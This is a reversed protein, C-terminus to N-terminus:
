PKTYFEIIGPRMAHEGIASVLHMLLQERIRMVVKLRDAVSQAIPRVFRQEVFLHGFGLEPVELEPSIWARSSDKLRVSSGDRRRPVFVAIAYPIPGLAKQAYDCAAGVRVQLVSYTQDAAMKTNVNKEVVEAVYGNADDFGLTKWNMRPELKCVAGWSTPAVGTPPQTTHVQTNLRAAHDVTLPVTDAGRFPDAWAPDAGPQELAHQLHDQLLPELASHISFRQDDDVHTKGIAGVALHRLQTPLSVAFNSPDVIAGVDVLTDSAASIVESEWQLLAALAPPASVHETIKTLLGQPDSSAGSALDIYDGKPLAMMAGPRTHPSDVFLNKELYQTLEALREAVETWLVLVFPGGVKNVVRKLIRQIEAYHMKFDSPYSSSLLQLDIFIVRAGRFPETPVDKGLEYLIGACASGLSQIADTIAGLHEPKDDVVVFRPPTFMM